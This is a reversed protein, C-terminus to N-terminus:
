TQMEDNEPMSINKTAEYITTLEDLAIEVCLRNGLKHGEDTIIISTADAAIGDKERIFRDQFRGGGRLYGKTDHAHEMMDRLDKGEMQIHQANDISEKLEPFLKRSRDLIRLLVGLSSIFDYAALRSCSSLFDVKSRDQQEHTLTNMYLHFEKQHKRNTTLLREAQSCCAWSWHKIEDYDMYTPKPQQDM